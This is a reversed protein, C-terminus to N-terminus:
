RRAKIKQHIRANIEKRFKKRLTSVWQRSLNLENALMTETVRENKQIEYDACKDIFENENELKM